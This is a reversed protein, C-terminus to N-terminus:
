AAALRPRAPFEKRDLRDLRAKHVRLDLWVRLAQPWTAGREAPAWLVPNAADHPQM